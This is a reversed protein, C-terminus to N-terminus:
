RCLDAVRSGSGGVWSCGTLSYRATTEIGFLDYLRIIPLYTRFPAQLAGHGRSWSLDEGEIAGTESISVPLGV